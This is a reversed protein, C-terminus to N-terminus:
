VKKTKKGEVKKKKKKEAKDGKDRKASSSKTSGKDKKVVTESDLRKRTVQFEPTVSKLDASLLAARQKEFRSESESFVVPSLDVSLVALTDPDNAALYRRRELDDEIKPSIDDQMNETVEEVNLNVIPISDVDVSSEIPIYFPDSQRQVGASASNRSNIAHAEVDEYTASTFHEWPDILTDNEEKSQTPPVIWSELDLGDPVPVKKQASPAVPNLEGYFLSSLHKVDVSESKSVLELLMIASSAQINYSLIHWDHVREQVEIDFSSEFKRFSEVTAHSFEIFTKDNADCSAIWHSFLKLAAHICVAQISFPLKLIGRATLAELIDPIKSVFSVSTNNEEKTSSEILLPDKLLCVMENVVFERISKVRVSIDVLQSAIKDGVSVFPVKILRILISIYWEFDSILSYTDRACISLIRDIVEKSYHKDATTMSSAKENLTAHDESAPLLQRMLRKVIDPLNKKTVMGTLLELARMRISLDSDDLCRVVTDRHEM